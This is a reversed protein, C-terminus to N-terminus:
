YRRSVVRRWISIGKYKSIRFLWKICANISSSRCTLVHTIFFFFILGEQQIGPESLVTYMNPDISIKPTQNKMLTFFFFSFFSQLTCTTHKIPVSQKLTHRNGLGFITIQVDIFIFCISIKGVSLHPTFLTYRYTFWVRPCWLAPPSLSEAVSPRVRSHKDHYWRKDDMM